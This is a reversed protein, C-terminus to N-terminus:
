SASPSTRPLLVLLCKECCNLRHYPQIENESLNYTAETSGFSSFATPSFTMQASRVSTTQPNKSYPLASGVPLPQKEPVDGLIASDCTREAAAGWGHVMGAGQHSKRRQEKDM